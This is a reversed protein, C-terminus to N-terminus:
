LAAAGATAVAHDQEPSGGGVGIAGIVQKDHVLPVGGGLLSFGATTFSAIRAPDTTNAALTVTATRFAASTRAKIPALVVAAGANGDMRTTAKEDGFADVVTVFMAPLGNRKVHRVAAAVVREAQAQSISRLKLPGDSSSGTAADAGDANTVGVAAAAAAALAAYGLASRRSTGEVPEAALAKATSVNDSEM